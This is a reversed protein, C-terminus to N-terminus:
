ALWPSVLVDATGAYINTAGGAAKEAKLLTLAAARLSPPVVLLTPRVGLPRGEDNKFSEMAAVAAAFNTADLTQKSAYGLQWLGFGVNRRCRLGYLYKDKMFVNQDDAKDLATFEPAVRDQFIIPKVPRSTDLLYWETGSGGGHNSVSAGAVSHDTDFFYQGDHCVTSGGLKLLSFVLEDVHLAAESGFASFIPNYVGLNDDEIDQRDVEVTDEYRKNKITYDSLSLNKVERDGVWERMKPLNSLWPYTNEKGSSPVRMAIKDWTTTVGNFAENFLTNFSKFMASLNAQNIVLGVGLFGLGGIAAEASLDGVAFVAILLVLALLLRGFISKDNM